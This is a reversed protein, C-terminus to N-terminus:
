KLGEVVKILETVPIGRGSTEWLSWGDHTHIAAGMALVPAMMIIAPKGGITTASLRDLPAKSDIAPPGIVRTVDIAIGKGDSYTRQINIVDEECAIVSMGAAQVDAPLYTAEFYVRSARGEQESAYRSPGICKPSRSRNVEVWNHDAGVLTFGNLEGTFRPKAFDAEIGLKEPELGTPPPPAAATVGQPTPLMALTLLFSAATIALVATPWVAKRLVRVITRPNMEVRGSM